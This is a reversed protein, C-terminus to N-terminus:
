AGAAESREESIIDGEPGALKTIGSYWIKFVESVSRELHADIHCVRMKGILGCYYDEAEFAPRREKGGNM